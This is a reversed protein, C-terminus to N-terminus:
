YSDIAEAFKNQAQLIVGINYHAAFFSENLLITRKFSLIAANLKGQAQLVVGLNYHAAIYDPKINIAHEYSSAAGALDGKLQLLYAINIHAEVHDPQLEVCKKYWLIADDFKTAQQLFEGQQFVEIAKDRSNYNKLCKPSDNLVKKLYNAIQLNDGDMALADQLAKIAEKRRKLQYLSTALNFYFLAVYNNYNIAKNFYEVALDHRNARQAILGLLNIADVHNPFAQVIVICLQEAGDFNESKYKEVAQSFAEEVTLQPQGTDASHEPKEMNM